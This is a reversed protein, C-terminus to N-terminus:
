QIQAYCDPSIALPHQYLKVSLGHVPCFLVVLESGMEDVEM